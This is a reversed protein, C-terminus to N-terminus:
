RLGHADLFQEIMGNVLSPDELHSFHSLGPTTGIRLNPLAKRLQEETRTPYRADILLTPCACTPLSAAGYRVLQEWNSAMVHQPASSM